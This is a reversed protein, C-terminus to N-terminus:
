FIAEPGIPPLQTPDTATSPQQVDAAMSEAADQLDAWFRERDRHDERFAYSGRVMAKAEGLSCGTLERVAKVAGIFTLGESRLYRVLADRDLGESRLRAAEVVALYRADLAVCGTQCGSWKANFQHRGTHVQLL